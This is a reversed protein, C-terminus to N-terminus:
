SRTMPRYQINKNIIIRVLLVLIGIFLLIISALGIADMMMIILCFAAFFCADAMSATTPMTNCSMAKAAM